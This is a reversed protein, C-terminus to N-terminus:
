KKRYINFELINGDNIFNAMVYDIVKKPTQAMGDDYSISNHILYITNDSNKIDEILRNEGDFGFNGRMFVDYDKYYKDLNIHYFAGSYDLIIVDFESDSIFKSISDLKEKISKKVLLGEYYKYDSNFIASDRSYFLYNSFPLLFYVILLFFLAYKVFYVKKIQIKFIFLKIFSYLFISILIIFPTILYIFHIGDRRPYFCSFSALSYLFVIKKSKDKEKFFSLFEYIIIAILLIFLISYLFKIHIKNLSNLFTFFSVENNFEKLGFLTYSFFSDLSDTFLLYCFFFSLPITMGLLRMILCKIKKNNFLFVKFISVLLIILGVSQKSLISLGVLIGIYLEKYQNNKIFLECFIILLLFLIALSNYEFISKTLLIIALSYSLIFLNNKDKENSLSETIKAIIFSDFVMLLSLYFCFSIAHSNFNLFLSGLLHYLFPVILSIDRYPILGKTIQLSVNYNWYFDMDCSVNNLLNFFVFVFSFIVIFKRIFTSKMFVLRSNNKM